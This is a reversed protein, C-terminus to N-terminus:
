NFSDYEKNETIDFTVSIETNLNFIISINELYKLLAKQEALGLKGENENEAILNTM